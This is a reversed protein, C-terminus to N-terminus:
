LEEYNIETPRLLVWVSNSFLLPRLERHPPRDRLHESINAAYAVRFDSPLSLLTHIYTYHVIRQGGNNTMTTDFDNSDYLILRIYDGRIFLIIPKGVISQLNASFIRM